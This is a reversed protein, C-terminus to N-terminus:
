LGTYLGLYGCARPEDIVITDFSDFEVRDISDNDTADIPAIHSSMVKGNMILPASGIHNPDIALMWKDPTAVLSANVDDKIAMYAGDISRDVMFWLRGVGFDAMPMNWPSPMSPVLNQLNKDTVTVQAELLNVLMLFNSMSLTCIKDKGGFKVLQALWERITQYSWNTGSHVRNYGTFTTDSCSLTRIGTSSTGDSYAADHPNLFYPIGGAIQNDYTENKGAKAIMNFFLALNKKKAYYRFAKRVLSELNHEIIFDEATEAQGVGVTDRGRQMYNWGLDGKKNLFPRAKGDNPVSSNLLKITTTAAAFTTSSGNTSLVEFEFRATGLKTKVRGYLYKKATSDYMYVVDGEFFRDETFTIETAVETIASLLTAEPQFYDGVAFSVKKSKRAGFKGKGEVMNAFAILSAEERTDDWATKVVNPMVIDPSTTLSYRSFPVNNTFTM